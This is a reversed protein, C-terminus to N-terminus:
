VTADAPGSEAEGGSAAPGDATVAKGEPGTEMALSRLTRAADEGAGGTLVVIVDNATMTVPSSRKRSDRWGEYAVALSALGTAQSLVVNIVDLAGMEGGPAGAPVLLVRAARGLEVDRALWRFLSSLEEPNGDSAFGIEVLM